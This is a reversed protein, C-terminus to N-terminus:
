SRWQRLLIKFFTPLVHVSSMAQLYFM